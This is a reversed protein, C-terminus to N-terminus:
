CPDGPADVATWALRRQDALTRARQRLIAEALLAPVALALGYQTATLALGIGGSARQAGDGTGGVVALDSFTHVMGAVTGLLGLLPLVTTLTRILSFSWGMASDEVLDLHRRADPRDSPSVAQVLAALESRRSHRRSDACWLTWATSGILGYLVTGVALIVPMLLDGGSWWRLVQDIANM